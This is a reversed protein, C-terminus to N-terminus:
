HISQLSVTVKNALQQQAPEDATSNQRSRVEENEPENKAAPPLQQHQQQQVPQQQQQVPQKQQQQKQQQQQQQQQVPPVQQQQQPPPPQQQQLQSQAQPASQPQQHSVQGQQKPPQSVAVASRAQNQSQDVVSEEAQSKGPEEGININQASESLHHNKEVAENEKDEVAGKERNRKVLEVCDKIAKTALQM